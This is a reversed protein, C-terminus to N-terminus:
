FRRVDRYFYSVEHAVTSPYWCGRGGLSIEQRGGRRGVYSYCGGGVFFDIYDRQNSRQVFKLCTESELAKIGEFLSTHAAPPLRLNNM